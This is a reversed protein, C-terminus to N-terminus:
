ILHLFISLLCIAVHSLLSTLSINANSKATTRATTRATTGATTGSTTGATTSVVNTSNVDLLDVLVSSGLVSTPAGLVTGNTSGKWIDIFMLSKSNSITFNTGNVRSLFSTFNANNPITFVCQILSSQISGQINTVDPTNTTELTNNYLATTQFFNGSNNNGCVTIFHRDQTINSTLGAALAIYGTSNGSLEVTLSINTLIASTFFCQSSGSPDCGKPNDLCLKTKGCENRSIKSTVNTPTSINSEAKIFSVACGIVCVLFMLKSEM